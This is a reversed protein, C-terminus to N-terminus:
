LNLPNFTDLGASTIADAEPSGPENQGFLGAFADDVNQLGGDGEIAGALMFPASSASTQDLNGGLQGDSDGTTILAFSSVSPAASQFSSSFFLPTSNLFDGSRALVQAADGFLIRSSGDVDSRFDYDADGLQAGNRPLISTVDGGFLVRDSSNIDGPLSRFQVSNDTGTTGNSTLGSASINVDIVAPELFHSLTLRVASPDSPDLTASTITPISGDIQTPDFQSGPIGTLSFDFVDLSAADIASAFQVVIENVNVWPINQQLNSVTLEYGYTAENATSGDVQDRFASTWLTSNLFVGAVEVPTEVVDNDTIVVTATNASGVSIGSDGSVIGVLTVEVTENGEVILDDLVAVDITATTQGAGITVIFPLSAYDVGGSATGGVSLSILTNTSSPSSLTVTFQGDTGGESGDIATISVTQGLEDDVINVTATNASGVSIGAEGSAIGLLTVEVTENGEFISDDLVAVDIVATTQGAVITANFPLSAYDVGGSATGGVSLSILTNTSSPSSLTVTFQGDTGGESGDTTAAISVTRVAQTDDDIITVEGDVLNIQSQVLNTPGTALNRLGIDVTEDAEIISDDTTTIGVTRVEPNAGLGSSFSIANTTFTYDATTADGGNAGLLDVVDVDIDVGPALTASGGAGDSTTLVVNFLQSQSSPSNDENVTESPSVSITATDNDVIVHTAGDVIDSDGDADGVDVVTTLQQIELELSEPGEILSDNIITLIPQDTGVGTAVGGQSNVITLDFVGTGQGGDAISSYDSAPITFSAPTFPNNGLVFDQGRVATSNGSLFQVVVTREATSTGTLDGSVILTPVGSSVAFQLPSSASGDEGQETSTQAFEIVAEDNNITATGVADAIQVQPVGTAPDADAGPGGTLTNANGADGAFTPDSLTVFFNEDLEVVNDGIVDVSLTASIQGAPFTVTQTTSVYDNNATTATGDSTTVEVTIAESAPQSLSLTFVAQATSGLDPEQVFVDGITINTTDDNLISGTATANNIQLTDLNQNANLPNSLTVTFNEDAEALTDGSVVVTILATTDNPGFTVTGSPLAGGVFDNATAPNSGLGTIAYAVTTDVTSGAILGARTVEYVFTTNSSFGTGENQIGVLAAELNLDIDDNLVTVTGTDSIDIEAPSTGDLRVVNSLNISFDEDLEVDADGVIDINIFQSEGATGAFTLTGSVPVYDSNGVLATIDQTSYDVTFGGQVANDVTVAVQITNTTSDELVSVDGVTLVATDDNAITAVQGNNIFDISDAPVGNAVNTPEHAPISLTVIFDEGPEVTSDEALNINFTSSAVGDAFTVFGTPFSGSAFDDATVSSGPAASVTYLASTFGTDLGSRTVTFTYVTNDGADGEVQSTPAAVSLTLDIDDNLITVSGDTTSISAADVGSAGTDVNSLLVDFLEDPEVNSDNNITVSFTQIEGDTGIFTLTGNNAVYDTGALAANDATNYDVTFGNQVAGTLQVEVTLTGDAENVSTGIVSVNATDDDNITATQAIPSGDDDGLQIGNVADVPTDTTLTPTHTLSANGLLTVVFDEDPEVTSDEALTIVIDQSTQGDAFTILGAPFGGTPFGFDDGTLTSGAARSVAWAVTTVGSTLGSRTATFTYTTNDAATDGENQSNGQTAASLVIDIDDDNITVTAGDTIDIDSSAIAPDNPTVSVASVNFFDTGNTTGEVFDDNVIDVTFSATEGSNGAFTLTPSTTVTYDSGGIATGNSTQYVATLGGQVDGNLVVTITATGADEDVVVDDVTLSASDDNVITATQVFPAGEDDGLQVGYTDDIPTDGTATPTHTLNSNDLLSLVFDEDPEVTADEALSITITQTTVGDAFTVTGSPLAVDPNGDGDLDFDAATVASGSAATVEWDVTTVGSTLGFRTVTFSYTTNSSPNGEDQSVLSAVGLTIDIDDDVITVSESSSSDVLNPTVTAVPPTVNTNNGPVIAGLGVVFNEFGDNANEIRDDNFIDVTITQVEGADGNFTLVGALNDFDDRTDTGDGGRASSTTLTYPVTFGNQVATGLTVTISATGDDENIVVGNQVTLISTDDDFITLSDSGNTSSIDVDGSTPVAGTSDVTFTATGLTAVVTEDGETVFDDVVDISAIESQDGPAFIVNSLSTNQYDDNGLGLVPDNAATGNTVLPNGIGDTLTVVIQNQSPNTLFVRFLGDIRDPTGEVVSGVLGEQGDRVREIQVETTNDDTITTTLTTNGSTIEDQPPAAVGDFQPNSISIQFQEDPEVFNALHTLAGTGQQNGDDEFTDLVIALTPATEVSDGTYTVTVTGTGADLTAEFSNDDGPSRLLSSTGAANYNDVADVIALFLPNTENVAQDSNEDFDNLSTPGQLTLDFDISATNGSQVAANGAGGITIAGGTGDLTLTYTAADGEDIVASSQALTFNATDDDIITTTVSNATTDISVQPDASSTLNGISISYDEDGEILSDNLTDLSVVLDDIDGDTDGQTYLVTATQTTGSAAAPTIEYTGNTGTVTVTALPNAQDISTGNYSVNAFDLPNNADAATLTIDYQITENAQLIFPAASPAAVSGATTASITYSTTGGENVTTAGSLSLVATDNDTIEIQETAATSDLQVDAGTTSSQESLEVNFNEPGEILADDTATLTVVVDESPLVTGGPNGVTFEVVLQGGAPLPNNVFNFFLNEADFSFDVSSSFDSSVVSVSTFDDFANLVDSIRFGNFTSASSFLSGFLSTNTFTVQNGSVDIDFSGGFLSVEGRSDVVFSGTGSM